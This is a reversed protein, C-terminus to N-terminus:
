LLNSTKKIEEIDPLHSELIIPIKKFNKRKLVSLAWSKENINQHLDTKSDNDHIHIAFVKDAVKDVFGDKDFNLCNSTVKLHGLDLLIGLNDSNVRKFLKEIEWYECILLLENKGNILNFEALVNPEIALKINKNQAYDLIEKVSDIFIDFAQNYPTIKDTNFKQGLKNYEPDVRFGAHFSYLPAKIKEALDIARKAQERSLNLIKEDKSALNMTFEKKPTPFFNHIIFNADLNNLYDEIGEEYVHSSGLEINKIGAEQFVKLVDSVKKGFGLCSTSIYIPM